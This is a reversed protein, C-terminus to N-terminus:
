SEDFFGFFNEGVEGVDAGVFELGVDEFDEFVGGEGFATFNLDGGGYLGEGLLALEM